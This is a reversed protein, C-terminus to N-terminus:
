NKQNKKNTKRTKKKKGGVNNEHFENDNSIPPPYKEIDILTRALKTATHIKLNNSDMNNRKAEAEADKLIQLIQNLDYTKVPDKKFDELTRHPRNINFGNLYEIIEKELTENNDNDTFMGGYKNSKRTTNKRKTHRRKTYKKM